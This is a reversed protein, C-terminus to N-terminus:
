NKSTTRFLYYPFAASLGIILNIVVIQIFLYKNIKKFIFIWFVFSVLFLDAILGTAAYTPFILKTLNSWEFDSSLIQKYFFYYPVLTGVITAILWFRRM